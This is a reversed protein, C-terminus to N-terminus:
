QFRGEVLDSPLVLELRRSRDHFDAADALAADLYCIAGGPRQVTRGSNSLTERVLCRALRSNNSDPFKRNTIYLIM